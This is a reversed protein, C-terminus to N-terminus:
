SRGAGGLELRYALAPPSGPQEVDYDPVREFGLGEYLARAAGMFPATHLALAPVGMHRARDVCAAALLTGIRRGRAAPDVALLRIVPWALPWGHMGSGSGDALLTVTGALRGGLDAVLVVGKGLRGRVDRIDQEFWDIFQPTVLPRYERFARITLDGVEHLEGALAERVTAESAAKL